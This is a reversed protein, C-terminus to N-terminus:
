GSVRSISVNVGHDSTIKRPQQITHQLSSDLVMRRNEDHAGPSRALGGRGLPQRARRDPQVAPGLGGDHTRVRIRRQAVEFFGYEDVLPLDNGLNQPRDLPGHVALRSRTSEEHGPRNTALHVLRGPWSGPSQKPDRHVAEGLALDALANGGYRQEVAQRLTVQIAQGVRRGVRQIQAVVGLERDPSAIRLRNQAKGVGFAVGPQVAVEM